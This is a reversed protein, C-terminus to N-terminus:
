LTQNLMVHVNAGRSPKENQQKISDPAGSWFDTGLQVMLHDGSRNLLNKSSNNKSQSFGSVLSFLALLTVALKKM